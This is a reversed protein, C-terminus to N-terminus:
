PCTRTLIEPRYSARWRVKGEAWPTVRRERRNINMIHEKEHFVLGSEFLLDVFLQAFSASGDGIASAPEFRGSVDGKM